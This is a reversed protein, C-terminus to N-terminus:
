YSGYEYAADFMAVINEAPVGAQINHVSNFVYGGGPKLAEINAQVHERVQAPSAFSLVHQTDIGGGWFTLDNGYRRKLERPDMNTASIQVPNLIDIGNDILDPILPMVSGCTHYWIKADTLSKIHQVLRKQRPKVVGRYFAPSFLPGTQGGIDDGIMVVDVLDGIEKMFENYYGIWFALTRDLLAECFAPKEVTDMYWRELGRMYWCTEYVVGGIGTSIAYPTQERLKLAEDRLGTFRTPDDGRPFPYDALDDITADALPHHSIDMYFPQDDPMSWVVGFEDTLDHWRRGGRISQQIGGEFSDPGHAFVYRIDVHFRELVEECPKALQQVPDMITVDDEIGLYDLLDIYAKRHIGTQFGGLDIPVRDPVEHDLTTLVRQRSTMATTM